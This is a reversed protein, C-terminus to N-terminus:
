PQEVDLFNALELLLAQAQERDIALVVNGTNTTLIMEGISPNTRFAAVESSRIIRHDNAYKSMSENGTHSKCDNLSPPPVSPIVIFVHQRGPWDHVAMVASTSDLEQQSFTSM